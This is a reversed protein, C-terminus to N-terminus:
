FEHVLSVAADYDARPPTFDLHYRRAAQEDPSSLKITAYTFIASVVRNAAAAALAFTARQYATKSSSRLVQYEVKKDLSQWLWPEYDAVRNEIFYRELSEYGIDTLLEFRGDLKVDAAYEESSDYDRIIAYFDDSHGTRAVGAFRVAFEEYDEERAAGEIRSVVFTTWIAAEIGFFVVARSKHGLKYDGLGPLLLSYLVARGTSITPYSAEPAESWEAARELFDADAASLGATPPALALTVPAEGARATAALALAAACM